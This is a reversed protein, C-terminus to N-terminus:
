DVEPNLELKNLKKLFYENVMASINDIYIPKFIIGLPKLEKALKLDNPNSFASIFIFPINKQKLKEAVYLGSINDSLIIDLLAISFSETEILEIAKSGSSVMIPNSFGCGKLAHKLDLATIAQDEVILATKPILSM